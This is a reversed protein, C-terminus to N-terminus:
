KETVRTPYTGIKQLVSGKKSEGHRTFQFQQEKYNNRFKYIKEIFQLHLRMPGIDRSLIPTTYLTECSSTQQTHSQHITDSVVQAGYIHCSSSRNFSRPCQAGLKM